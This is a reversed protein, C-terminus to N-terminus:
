GEERGGIVWRGVRWAIVSALFLFNIAVFGIVAASAPATWGYPSPSGEYISTDGTRIAAIEAPSVWFDRSACGLNRVNINGNASTHQSPDPGLLRAACDYGRRLEFRLSESQNQRQLESWASVAGALAGLVVSLRLGIGLVRKATWTGWM